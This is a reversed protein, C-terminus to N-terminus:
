QLFIKINVIFYQLLMSKNCAFFFGRWRLAINLVANKKKGLQYSNLFGLTLATKGGTWSFTRSEFLPLTQARSSLLRLPPPPPSPPLVPPLMLLLPLSPLSILLCPLLSRPPPPPAEERMRKTLLKLSLLPPFSPATPLLLLLRCFAPSTSPQRGSDHDYDNDSNHQKDTEVFSKGLHERPETSFCCSPQSEPSLFFDSAEM